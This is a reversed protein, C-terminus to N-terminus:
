RARAIRRSSVRMRSRRYNQYRRRARLPRVPSRSCNSHLWPRWTSFSLTGTPLNVDTQLASIMRHLRYRFGSGVQRSVPAAAKTLWSKGTTEQQGILWCRAESIVVAGPRPKESQHLTPDSGCLCASSVARLLPLDNHTFRLLLNSRGTGDHPAVRM